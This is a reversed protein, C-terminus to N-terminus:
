AGANQVLIVCCKQRNPGYHHTRCWHGECTTSREVKALPVTAANSRLAGPRGPWGVCKRPRFHGGGINQFEDFFFIRLEDIEAKSVSNALFLVYGYGGSQHILSEELIALHEVTRRDGSPLADVLRVHNQHGLRRSRDDIREVLLGGENQAAIDDLRHGHLTVSAIRTGQRFAGFRM